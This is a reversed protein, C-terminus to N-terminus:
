LLVLKEYGQVLYTDFINSFNNEFYKATEMGKVLGTYDITGKRVLFM